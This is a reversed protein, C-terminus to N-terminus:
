RKPATLGELQSNVADQILSALRTQRYQSWAPLGYRALIGTVSFAAAGSFEAGMTRLKVAYEGVQEASIYGTVVAAVAVLSVLGSVALGGGAAFGAKIYWKM